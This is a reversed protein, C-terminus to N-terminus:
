EKINTKLKIEAQGKYFTKMHLNSMGTLLYFPSLQYCQVSSFTDLPPFQHNLLPSFHKKRTWSSELDLSDGNQYSAVELETPNLYYARSLRM